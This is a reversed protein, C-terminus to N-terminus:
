QDAILGNFESSESDVTMRFLKDETEDTTNSQAISLFLFDYQTRKGEVRWKAYSWASYIFYKKRSMRERM